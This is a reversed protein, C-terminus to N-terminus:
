KSQPKVLVEDAHIFGVKIRALDELGSRGDKLDQTQQKIVNNSTKLTLNRSEAQVVQKQMESIMLRGGWGFWLIYQLYVCLIFLCLTFPRLM